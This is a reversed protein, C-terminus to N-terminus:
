NFMPRHTKTNRRDIQSGDEAPDVHAQLGCDVRRPGPRQRALPGQGWKSTEGSTIRFLCESEPQDQSGM